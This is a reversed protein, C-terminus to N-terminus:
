KGFIKHIMDPFREGLFLVILISVIIAVGWRVVTWKPSAYEKLEGVVPALKEVETLRQGFEEPLKYIKKLREIEVEDQIQNRELFDLKTKIEGIENEIRIQGESLKELVPLIPAVTEGLKDSIIGDRIDMFRLFFQQFVPPISKFYEKLENAREPTMLRDVENNLDIQEQKKTM